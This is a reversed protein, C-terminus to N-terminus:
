KGEGASIQRAKMVRTVLPSMSPTESDACMQAVQDPDEGTEGRGADQADREAQGHAQPGLEVVAGPRDDLGDAENRGRRIGM